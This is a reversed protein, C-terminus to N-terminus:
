GVGIGILKEEIGSEKGYSSALPLGQYGGGSSAVAGTCGNGELPSFLSRYVYSSPVLKCGAKADYLTPMTASSGHSSSAQWQVCGGPLGMIINDLSGKALWASIGEPAEVV